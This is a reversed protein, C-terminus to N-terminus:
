EGEVSFALLVNGPIVGGHHSYGSGTFLMGDVVAPGGSYFSGGKANIGNVTTFERVTDYDWLIKGDQTSYARLHGDVSGSFVVGPIATVAAGQAPSCPKRNGCGPAPTSWLKRGTRLELAVMGGGANPDAQTTGPLRTFDSIAVYLTEGDTAPGFMIGGQTGGKAVRQQWITKGEQSPDLAYVLGSKQAAILLQRGGSLEVLIPSAVFDFDPADADPCTVPDREPHRCGLNWIDGETMQRSWLIKGSNMDFALIADSLRTAPSSYDNGSGVYLINRKPDLTPAVWLAVGAPGWHQTGIRSKQTPRAEQPITYTKWLQKGTAAELAVMSGRFRCCPYRPDSVRSEERSSVPVFLRGEYLLPSGRVRALPYDEVKVKWRLKGTAAEVAYVNASLDGFYVTLRGDSGQGILVASPVGSEAEIMWHVCGTKADLSYVDGEWSGVYVRGGLVVPQVGTSSAGPFGFAWKLQLRPVDAASIGAAPAPQFRTNEMTVGWGNWAPGALSDQFSQLSNECFASRPIPNLPEQGFAKGSLFEAVARREARGLESGQSSMVGRELAALIQEPSMQRLVAQTPAASEGGAEHCIACWTRYLAEGEQARLPASAWGICVGCIIALGFARLKM